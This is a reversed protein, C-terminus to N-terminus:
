ATIPATQRSYLKTLNHTMMILRWETRVASRGRRHFRAFGRNHKTHGFTPEITQKRKRYLETGLETALVSRMWDYRGGTWGPRPADRKSSDPPILVEIGHDGTVQDMHQENWFGADALVARPKASVGAQELERLTAAVMPELQSFDSGEVTVEAALVVGDENVAAQANYGQIYSRFGKMLRSDPDTLNVKGEPTAPPQYPKPPSGFRRGNKMRGTVRYHEYAENGRQEAALEDALRQAAERLREARARPVPAPSAWRDRDLQRRAELLWGDRGQVRAVIQEADFEYEGDCGRGGDATATATADDEGDATRQRELERALWERRGEETALESPLEDGRKEGHVEDEAEDTAKAEELIERGIRDFDVNQDRNANALIKTGDIAVVGSEVLGAKACLGLVSAFLGALREEHRCLFRAITAHDPVVNATVVRYAVSDRCHREIRRSSREGTAYAYLVLAVMMSPEYAARGHGDARYADYFGSLDLERVVGLLFRAFHDEPLWDWLSPPLLLVQDRDCSLFNQPM